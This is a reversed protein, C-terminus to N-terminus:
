FAQRIKEIEYDLLGAQRLRESSLRRLMWLNGEVMDSNLITSLKRIATLPIDYERLAALAPDLFGNELRSAFPLYNGPRMQLRNFAYGQLGNVVTLWKPLKYDFYSRSMQLVAFTVENIRTAKDEIKNKWFDNNVADRIVAGLSGTYHYSYAFTTLWRASLTGIKAVRVSHDEPKALYDWALTVVAALQEYTPFASTWSLQRHYRNPDAELAAVLALQGEINVTSHQKIEAMLDVPLDDYKSLRHRQERKVDSADLGLLIEVPANQQSIVPIDVEFDLQPPENEFRFVKGIFHKRMRGSRGAINKYDFFDIPKNGKKKYYLIVNKASTNVGEILTATCFLYKIHGNNFADV